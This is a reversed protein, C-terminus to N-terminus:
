AAVTPQCRHRDSGSWAPTRLTSTGAGGCAATLAVIGAAACLYLARHYKM